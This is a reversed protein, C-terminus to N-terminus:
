QESYLVSWQHTVKKLMDDGGSTVIDFITGNAEAFINFDGTLMKMPNYIVM